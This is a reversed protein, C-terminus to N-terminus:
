KKTSFPFSGTDFPTLQQQDGHELSIFTVPNRMQKLVASRLKKDFYKSDIKVIIPKKSSMIWLSNKDELPLIAAIQYGIQDLRSGLSSEVTQQILFGAVFHDYSNKDEIKTRKDIPLLVPNPWRIKAIENLHNPLDLQNFIEFPRNPLTKIRETSM